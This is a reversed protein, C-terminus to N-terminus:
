GMHMGMYCQLIHRDGDLENGDLEHVARIADSRSSFTVEATCFRSARSFATM